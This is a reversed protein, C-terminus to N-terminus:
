AMINVLKNVMVGLVIKGAQAPLYQKLFDSFRREVM